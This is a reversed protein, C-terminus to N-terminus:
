LISLARLLVLVMFVPSVYRVMFRLWSAGRFPVQGDNTIEKIANDVGWSYGVFICTFLGAVIMFINQALYDILDFFNLSFLKVEALPGVALFGLVADSSIIGMSLSCPISFVLTFASILITARHRRMKHRDILYGVGVEMLSVNSTIAALMLLVFFIIGFLTGMPMRAFVQPLTIFTLTAGQTPEIGFAFVAPLICLGAMVAALTDLFPIVIAGTVMNNKKRMYSGYTIIIGMGLSMSWFMQGMADMVGGRTLKSLDPKLLFVVGEWAGPLTLSRVIMVLLLVFLIPMMIKSFKEIGKEVGRYIIYASGILFLTQWVLPEWPNSIFNTFSGGIDAPMGESIYIIFRFIYALVWGGIVVYYCPILVGSLVGLVGVFKFRKDLREFASVPELRTHRGIAMEGLILPVGVIVVFIIYVLLFIGGGNKGAMYPFKWLNGLGIASGAMAMMFGFSSGWQSRSEEQMMHEKVAVRYFHEVDRMRGPPRRGNRIPAKRIRGAPVGGMGPSPRDHGTAGMKTLLPSEAIFYEPCASIGTIIKAIAPIESYFQNKANKEGATREIHFTNGHTIPRFLIPVERNHGVLHHTEQSGCWAIGNDVSGSSQPAM